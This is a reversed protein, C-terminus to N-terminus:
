HNKKDIILDSFSYICLIIGLANTLGWAWSFVIYYNQLVWYFAFGWLLLLIGVITLLKHHLRDAYGASLFTFVLISIGQM